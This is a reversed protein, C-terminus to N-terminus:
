KGGMETYFTDLDVGRLDKTAILKSITQLTSGLHTQPFEVNVTVDALGASLLQNAGLSEMLSSSWTDAFIGSDTHSVNHLKDLDDLIENFYLPPVGNRDVIFPSKSVGPQGVLAVSFGGVSFAGVNRGQRTLIDSMRGLIGTGMAADDPDVRRAERRMHNHAFLQTNTLVYYNDKNVPQSMVGTNAFFLLDGEDYLSQIASFKPHLGFISCVQNSALIPLLTNKSLAVQQRVDAFFCFNNLGIVQCDFYCATM